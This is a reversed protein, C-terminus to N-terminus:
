ISKNAKTWAHSDVLPLFIGIWINITQRQKAYVRNEEKEESKGDVKIKKLTCM